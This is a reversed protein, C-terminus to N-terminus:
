NLAGASVIALQALNAAMRPHLGYSITRLSSTNRYLTGGYASFLDGASLGPHQFQRLIPDSGVTHWATLGPRPIRASNTPGEKTVEAYVNVARTSPLGVRPRGYTGVTFAMTPM